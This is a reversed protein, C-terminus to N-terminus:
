PEIGIHRLVNVIVRLILQSMEGKDVGIENRAPRVWNTQILKSGQRAALRRARLLDPSKSVQHLERQIRTPPRAVAAPRLVGIKAVGKRGRNGAQQLPLEWCDRSVIAIEVGVLVTLRDGVRRPKVKRRDFLTAGAKVWRKRLAHGIGFDQADQEADPGGLCRVKLRPMVFRAIYNRQGVRCVSQYKRIQVRR